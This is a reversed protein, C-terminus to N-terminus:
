YVLARVCVSDNTFFTQHAYERPEPPQIEQIWPWVDVGHLLLACVGGGDAVVHEKECVQVYVQMQMQVYVYLPSPSLVM